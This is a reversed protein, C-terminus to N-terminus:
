VLLITVCRTFSKMWRFVAPLTEILLTAQHHRAATLAFREYSFGSWLAAEQWPSPKRRISDPGSGKAM